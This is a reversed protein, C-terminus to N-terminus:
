DSRGLLFGGAALAHNVGILIDGQRDEHHDESMMNHKNKLIENPM